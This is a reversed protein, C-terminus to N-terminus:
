GGVPLRTGGNKLSRIVAPGVARAIADPTGLPQTVHVNVNVISSGGGSGAPYMNGASSPVFLEPQAGKGILYPQGAVVPGGSDRIGLSKNIFGGSAIFAAQDATYGSTGGGYLTRAVSGQRNDGFYRLDNTDSIISKLSTMYVGAAKDAREFSPALKDIQPAMEGVIGNLADQAKADALADALFKENFAEAAKQAELMAIVGDNTAKTMLNRIEFERQAAAEEFESFSKAAGLEDARASACAKIQAATYGYATALTGQSVGLDLYHKIAEVDDGAMTDLTTHWSVGAGNLEDMVAAWKAAADAAAKIEAATAKVAPAHATHAATAAKTATTGKDTKQNLEDLLRTLNETGTGLGSSAALMDKTQAWFISWKSAGRDVANNIVNFGEALPGIMSAAIASVNKEARAISEGFEDMAKTSETSAVHNLRQWTELAGEIGESAGAMAMGLRSGFLESATTDRLGGQLTALGGEIKLFLERGQLGDLEELSMGMTQLAKEISDDGKAIRRSLGFLGKALTDQDVGFESMAGALTQIEEITIHTQQSLDVLASAEDFTSKVFNFAARATFMAAFGLALGKVTDTLGGSATDVRRTEDALKQMGPPAERGLVRYKELAKELTANVRAQEAETLRSAGGIENVAAVVNQASQILKDGSFSAALKGMAATTTEIQSVGEALNKRLEEITAAVRVILAPNGAM